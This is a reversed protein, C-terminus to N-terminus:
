ETEVKKTTRETMLRQWGAPGLARLTTVNKEYIVSSDPFAQVAREVSVERLLHLMPFPSRNSFNAM